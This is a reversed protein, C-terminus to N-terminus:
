GTDGKRGWIFAYDGPGPLREWEEMTEIFKRFEYHGWSFDLLHGFSGRTVLKEFEFRRTETRCLARVCDIIRTLIVKRLAVVRLSHKHTELIEIMADGDLHAGDIILRRLNTTQPPLDAIREFILPALAYGHWQRYKKQQLFTWADPNSTVTNSVLTKGPHNEDTYLPDHLVLIEAMGAQAKVLKPSRLTVTLKRMGSIGTTGRTALIEVKSFTHREAFEYTSGNYLDRCTARMSGLGSDSLKTAIMELVEVPLKPLSAESQSTGAHHHQQFVHQQLDHHQDDHKSDSAM